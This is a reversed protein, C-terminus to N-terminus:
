RGWPSLRCVRWIEFPDKSIFFWELLKFDLQLCPQTREKKHTGWLLCPRVRCTNQLLLYKSSLHPLTPSDDCFHVSPTSWPGNQVKALQPPLGKPHM